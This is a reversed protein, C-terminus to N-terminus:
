EEKAKKWGNVRDLYACPGNVLVTAVGGSDTKINVLQEQEMEALLKIVEYRKFPTLSGFYQAPIKEAYIYDGEKIEQGEM